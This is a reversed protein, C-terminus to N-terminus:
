LHVQYNRDRCWIIIFNYVTRQRQREKVITM